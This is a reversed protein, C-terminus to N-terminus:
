ANRQIWKANIKCRISRKQLFFKHLEQKIKPEKPTTNRKNKWSGELSANIEDYTWIWTRLM